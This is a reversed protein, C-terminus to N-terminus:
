FPFRLVIPYKRKISVHSSSGLSGSTQCRRNDRLSCASAASFPKSFHYPSAALSTSASSPMAIRTRWEAKTIYYRQDAGKMGWAKNLFTKAMEFLESAPQLTKLIAAFGDEM